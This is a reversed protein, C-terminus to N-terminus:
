LSLTARGRDIGLDRLTRADLRDFTDLAQQRRRREAVAGLLSTLAAGLWRMVRRSIAPHVMGAPEIRVVGSAALSTM